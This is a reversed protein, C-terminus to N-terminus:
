LRLGFAFDLANILLAYKHLADIALKLLHLHMRLMGQLVRGCQTNDIPTHRMDLAPVAKLGGRGSPHM